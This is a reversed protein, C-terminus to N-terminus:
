LFQLFFKQHILSLGLYLVSDVLCVFHCLSYFPGDSSFCNLRLDTFSSSSSVTLASLNSTTLYAAAPSTSPSLLDAAALSSLVNSQCSSRGSDDSPGRVVGGDSCDSLIDLSDDISKASTLQTTASSLTEEINKSHLKEGCLELSDDINKATLECGCPDDINEPHLRNGCVDVSDDINKATLGQRRTESSSTEEINKTRLKDGSLESTSDDINKATPGLRHMNKPHLRGGCGVLLEDDVNEPPQLGLTRIVPSNAPDPDASTKSCCDCRTRSFRRRLQSNTVAAHYLTLSNGRRRNPQRQRPSPQSTSYQPSGGAGHSCSSQHRFRVTATYALVLLKVSRM